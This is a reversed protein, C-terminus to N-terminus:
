KEDSKSAQNPATLLQEIQLQKERVEEEAREREQGAIMAQQKAQYLELHAKGVDIAHSDYTARSQQRASIKVQHRDLFWCGAMVAVVTLWLVDRISFRFM